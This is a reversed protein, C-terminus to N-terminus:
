SEKAPSNNGHTLTLTPVSPLGPEVLCCCKSTYTFVPDLPQEPQALGYYERTHVLTLHFTPQGSNLWLLPQMCLFLSQTLAQLDGQDSQHM